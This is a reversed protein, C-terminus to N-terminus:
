VNGNCGSSFMTQISFSPLIHRGHISADESSAFLHYHYQTDINYTFIYIYIYIYTHGINLNTGINIDIDISHRLALPCVDVVQM